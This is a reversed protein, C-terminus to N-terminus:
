KHNNKAMQHKRYIKKDIKELKTLTWTECNYLFLPQIYTTFAKTKTKITLHKNNFILTLNNASRIALTKRRKIDESTGLMSGLFKCKKWNRRSNKNIKYEETKSENITIDRKTLLKPTEDKFRQISNYDTSVKCMDDAYQMDLNLHKTQPIIAYNRETYADPFSHQVINHQKIYHHDLIQAERQQLFKALFYTFENASACDGQPTGTDTDFSQSM